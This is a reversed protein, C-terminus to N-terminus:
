HFVIGSKKLDSKVVTYDPVMKSVLKWFKKSHNFERLHCLEHAVIYEQIREPLFLIKYNFNLNGKRSCSGWRTKQNKINIKNYSYSHEESLQRAKDEVLSLANERYRLYDKQSYRTIPRGHFQKFFAIKSFLWRSKERIFKEAVTEQLDYPATVVITGDCYVALRMRRARKSKKLTYTVKKNQLAIERKM